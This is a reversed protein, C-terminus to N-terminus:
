PSSLAAKPEQVDQKWSSTWVSMDVIGHEKDVHKKFLELSPPEVVEKPQRNWYRVLRCKLLMCQQSRCDSCTVSESFSQIVFVLACGSLRTYLNQIVRSVCFIFVKCCGTPRQTAAPNYDLKGQQNRVLKGMGM